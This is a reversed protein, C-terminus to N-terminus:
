AEGKISALANLVNMPSMPFHPVRVGIANSVANGIAAATSVTPPEGVGIVGRARMAPTDYAHIVIEPIDSPGALKYMEMDPNLMRGTTADMVREEFLAYNLGGIVGGYVQSDWTSRNVILGSDQVAVIKELKVIGTEVDVAVTAFQCGAVGNSSLEGMQPGASSTVAVGKMGLKRCADTWSAIPEDHVFLQGDALRMAKPDGGYAPAIRAFFEDRAAQAAVLAAPMMSPTTTSGGSAQGPPYDSDGILATIQDPKLGFVEAGVIAFLTRAGTGIDQTASKLTVSGDPNIEVAVQKGPAGGGGWMHLAMGIGRKIPGPAKRNESRPRYNAKWGIAEAGIAVQDRYIPVRDVGGAVIDNEAFNKLRLELPDIGLAEALDDIASETLICSQPHRPARMARAGGGHTAVEGTAVRINPIGKYVDPYPILVTAGGAVGGTGYVDASMATIKGDKTGAIKITGIVSPRNGAALHEQARDLFIKVPRGGAKRSLECAAVGWSDPGFKSGFGGGMVETYCRVDAEPLNFTQALQQPLGDVNQTSAWVTIKGDKFQATLGHTELCVHTIVPASYTAEVVADAQQFAADPDGTTRARPPRYNPGGAVRPADEAMAQAETVAHPLVEYEVKIAALADRAIEESEAAVAAIDDGHFRVKKGPETLLHVAVVGPLKEAASTDISKVVAHAHPSYLVAGFLMGEPRVDSPYKIRGSAKGLGDVRPVRSGVVKPQEPWGM